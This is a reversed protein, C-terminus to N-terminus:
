RICIKINIKHKDINAFTEIMIVIYLNQVTKIITIMLAIGSCAAVVRAVVRAASDAAAARVAFGADPYM